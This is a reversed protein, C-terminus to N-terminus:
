YSEFNRSESLEATAQQSARKREGEILMLARAAMYDPTYKNGATAEAIMELCEMAIGLQKELATIVRAQELENANM